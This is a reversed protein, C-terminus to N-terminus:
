CLTNTKFIINELLNKQIFNTIPRLRLYLLRKKPSANSHTPRKSGNILNIEKWSGLWPMDPMQFFLTFHEQGSINVSGLLAYKHVMANLQHRLLDGKIGKAFHNDPNIWTLLPTLSLPAKASGEKLIHAATHSGSGKSLLASAGSCRGPTHYHCGRRQSGPHFPAAASQLTHM